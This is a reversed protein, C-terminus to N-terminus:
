RYLGEREIIKVVEDSVLYRIPVGAAVRARILTSSIDVRTVPVTQRVFDGKAGIQDVGDRSLMVVAALKVIEDPERWSAFDRVQDVGVLLQLTAKPYQEGLKRLTDVTYSPGARDLECTSIEFQPNGAITAQLMESRVSAASVQEGRKHPPDAAPVFILRDLALAVAADQAAVLHGLHPPDFTGGFVGINV